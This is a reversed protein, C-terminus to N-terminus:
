INVDRSPGQQGGTKDKTINVHGDWDFYKLKTECTRTDKFYDFLNSLNDSTPIVDGIKLGCANTGHSMDV